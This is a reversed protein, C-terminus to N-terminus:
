RRACALLAHAHAHPQTLLYMSPRNTNCSVARCPRGVQLRGISTAPFPSIRFASCRPKWGHWGLKGARRCLLCAPLCAALCPHAWQLRVQSANIRQVKSLLDELSPSRRMEGPQVPLAGAAEALGGNGAGNPAAMPADGAGVLLEFSTPLHAAEPPLPARRLADMADSFLGDDDDPLAAKMVSMANADRNAAAPSSPPPPPPNVTEAVPLAASCSSCPLVLLQQICGPQCGHGPGRPDSNPFCLPTHRLQAGADGCGDEGDGGFESIHSPLQVPPRGAAAAAARLEVGDGFVSIHTPLLTNPSLAVSGGALGGGRSAHPTKVPVAASAPLAGLAAAAEALVGSGGSGAAAAMGGVSGPPLVGPSRRSLAAAAAAGAEYKTEFMSQFQADDEEEADEMVVSAQPALPSGLQPQPHLLPPAPLPAPLGGAGRPSPLRSRAAAEAAAEEAAEAAEEADPDFDIDDLAALGLDASPDGGGYLGSMSAAVASAHWPSPLSSASWRRTGDGAATLLNASQLQGLFRMRKSVLAQWEEQAALAAAEQGARFGAEWALETDAASPTATGDPSGGAEPVSGSSLDSSFSSPTAAVRGFAKTLSSERAPPPAAAVSAEGAAGGSGSGSGGGGGGSRGLKDASSTRSASFIALDEPTYPEEAAPFLFLRLRFTKIPTGPM